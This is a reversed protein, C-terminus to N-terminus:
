SVLKKLQSVDVPNFFRMNTGNSLTIELFVNEKREAKESVPLKIFSGRQEETPNNQKKYRKFWYQFNNMSVNEQLTFQKQTLGSEQWRCVMAFKEEKLEQNNKM